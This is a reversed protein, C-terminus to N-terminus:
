EDLGEVVACLIESLSALHKEMSFESLIHKRAQQGMKKVLVRNGALLIIRKVMADVDHESVLFGTEGEVVVDPIGAHTTAVVPLGAAGAELIAVPTGEADGDGARVSHQIFAFAKEMRERVIHPKAEGLLEVHHDLTWARVLSETVEFLEGDGIFCLKLDPCSKQVRRFAELTLYPAKKYTLRGVAVLTDSSYDPTVEFFRPDPGCPNHRIKDEPCGLELLVQSMAHSVSIVSSAYEFLKRYADAFEELIKYRSADFGHFHAVLPIGATQCVPTIFAATTGYEALVVDIQQSQLFDATNQLDTSPPFLRRRMRFELFRPLLNLWRDGSRRCHEKHWESLKCGAWTYDLSHGHLHIVDHPLGELHARIFTESPGVKAPTVICVRM